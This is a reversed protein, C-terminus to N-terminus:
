LDKQQNKQRDKKGSGATKEDRKKEFFRALALSAEFLVALPLALLIQSVPDPSPTLVAAAVFILVMIIKRSKALVKSRVVGLHVLGILVVPFDFLIGFALLMGTLFSFYPKIGLLPRIQDTQFSLFFNLSFPVVAAYAFVGGALFLVVSALALFTAPRKEHPYLGPSVFFWAEAFLVPCSVVLGALAAVKLRIMLAEYPTQFYLATGGATRDLPLTLFLLLSDSFFYCAISAAVFAALAVLLRRRLEELHSIFDAEM